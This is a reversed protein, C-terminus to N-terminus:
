IKNNEKTNLFCERHMKQVSRSQWPHQDPHWFNCSDFVRTRPQLCDGCRWQQQRSIKLYTLQDLSLKTVSAANKLSANINAGCCPTLDAGDFGVKPHM